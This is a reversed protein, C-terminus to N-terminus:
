PERRWEARTTCRVKHQGNVRLVVTDLLADGQSKLRADLGHRAKGAARFKGFCALLVGLQRSAKDARVGRAGQRTDSM